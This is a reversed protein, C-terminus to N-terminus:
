SCAGHLACVNNGAYHATLRMGERALRDINPTRIKTQGYCGLDGYGLDDALLFVINPKEESGSGKNVAPGQSGLPSAWCSPGAVISILTLSGRTKM